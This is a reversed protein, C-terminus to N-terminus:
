HSCFLAEKTVKKRYKVIKTFKEKEKVEMGVAHVLEWALAHVQPVATVIGFGEVNHWWPIGIKTFKLIFRLEM